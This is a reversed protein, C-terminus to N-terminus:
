PNKGPDFCMQTVVHSALHQKALLAPDLLDLPSAVPHGEPYGAVGARMTGGTYQAIDELVPLASHTRVQPSRPDGGIAFVDAIGYATCDRIIDTLEARDAISRAALHPVM